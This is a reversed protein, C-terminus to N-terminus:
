KQGAVAMASAYTSLAESATNFTVMFEESDFGRFWDLKDFDGRARVIDCMVSLPKM